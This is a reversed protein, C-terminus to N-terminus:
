QQKKTLLFRWTRTEVHAILRLFKVIRRWSRSFGTFLYCRCKSHLASGLCTLGTQRMYWGPCIIRYKRLKFKEPFVQPIPGKRNVVMYPSWGAPFTAIMQGSQIYPKHHEIGMFQGRVFAGKLWRASEVMGKGWSLHCFRGSVAEM